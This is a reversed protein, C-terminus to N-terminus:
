DNRDYIVIPNNELPRIVKRMEAYLDPASWHCATRWEPAEREFMAAWDDWREVMRAWTQSVGQMEGLRAAFGPVTELLRLCRAFDAPDFPHTPFRWDAGAPIGTLREFIANSSTGRHPGALWAVAENSIM